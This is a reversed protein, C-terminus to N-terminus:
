VLVKATVISFNPIVSLGVFEVKIRCPDHLFRRM